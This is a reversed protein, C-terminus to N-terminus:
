QSASRADELQAAFEEVTLRDQLVEPVFRRFLEIEDSSFGVYISQNEPLQAIEILEMTLAEDTQPEASRASPLQHPTYKGIVNLGPGSVYYSLFDYAADPNPSWSTISFGSGWLSDTMPEDYAAEELMPPVVYGLKEKGLTEVKDERYGVSFYMAAEGRYFEDFGEEITRTAYGESFCGRENLEVIRNLVTMYRDDTWPIEGANQAGIDEKPFMQSGLIFLIWEGYAGDQFGAGIPTIGAGNFADCAALLDDFTELETEPDIGVQEFLEINYEMVYAYATFPLALLTGDTKAQELFNLDERQEDTVFDDL